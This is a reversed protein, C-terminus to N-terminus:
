DKLFVHDIQVVEMEGNIDQFVLTTCEPGTRFLRMYGDRFWVGRAEGTGGALSEVRALSMGYRVQRHISGATPTADPAAADPASASAPGYGNGGSGANRSLYSGAGVLLVCAGVIALAVNRVNASSLKM